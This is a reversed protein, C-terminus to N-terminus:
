PVISAENPFNQLSFAVLHIFKSELKKKKKFDITLFIKKISDSSFGHSHFFFNSFYL